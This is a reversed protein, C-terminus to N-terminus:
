LPFYKEHQRQCQFPANIMAPITQLPKCDNQLASGHLLLVTARTTPSSKWRLVNKHVPFLHLFMISFVPPFTGLLSSKINLLQLYGMPPLPSSLRLMYVKNVIYVPCIDPRTLLKFIFASLILNSIRTTANMLSGHAATKM